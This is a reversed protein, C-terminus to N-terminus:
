DHWVTQHSQRFTLSARSREEKEKEEEEEREGRKREEGEHAACAFWRRRQGAVM